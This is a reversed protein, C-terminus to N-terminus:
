DGDKDGKKTLQALDELIQDIREIAETVRKRSEVVETMSTLPIFTQGSPGEYGGIVKKNKFDVM